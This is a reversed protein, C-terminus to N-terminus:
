RDGGRVWRAGIMSGPKTWQESAAAAARVADQSAATCNNEDKDMTLGSLPALSGYRSHQGDSTKADNPPPAGCLTSWATFATARGQSDTKTARLGLYVYGKDDAAEASDGDEPSHVQLVEPAGGALVYPITSTTHKGASNVDFSTLKDASVVFANACGPWRAVPRTQDFRCPKDSVGRWVGLRLQPPSADAATFLPTKTMVMNCGGLLLLSLAVLLPRM